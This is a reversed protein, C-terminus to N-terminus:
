MLGRFADMEADAGWIPDNPDLDALVPPITLDRELKYMGQEDLNDSLWFLILDQLDAPSLKLPYM